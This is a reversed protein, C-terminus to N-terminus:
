PANEGSKQSDTLRAEFLSPNFPPDARRCVSKWQTQLRTSILTQAQQPFLPKKKTQEFHPLLLALLSLGGAESSGM